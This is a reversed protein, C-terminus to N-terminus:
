AVTPTPFKPTKWCWSIGLIATRVTNSQLLFATKEWDILLRRPDWVFLSLSESHVQFPMLPIKDCPCTSNLPIKEISAMGCIKVLVKQHITRTPPNAFSKIYFCVALILSTCANMRRKYINLSRNLNESPNTPNGPYNNIVKFSTPSSRHSNIPQDIYAHISVGGLIGGFFRM